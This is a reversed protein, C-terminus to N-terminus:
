ARRDPRAHRLEGSTRVGFPAVAADGEAMLAKFWPAPAGLARDAIVRLTAGDAPCM